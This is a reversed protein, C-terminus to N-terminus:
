ESDEGDFGSRSIIDRAIIDASAIDSVRESRKEKDGIPYNSLISKLDKATIGLFNRGKTVPKEQGYTGLVNGEVKGVVEDDSHYGIRVLGSREQVLKLEALMDGSFTLDVNAQGKEEAYKKSYKVFNRGSADIGNETRTIVLDIIEAAIARREDPSYEKSLEVEFFPKFKAM